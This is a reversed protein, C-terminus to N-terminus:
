GGGNPLNVRPRNRPPDGDGPGCDCLKGVSNLELTDGKLTSTFTTLTPDYGSVIQGCSYDGVGKELTLTFVLGCAGKGCTPDGELPVTKVTDFTTFNVRRKGSGVFDHSSVFTVEGDKFDTVGLPVATFDVTIQDGTAVVTLTSSGVVVGDGGRTGSGNLAVVDCHGPPYGASAAGGVLACAIGALIARQATNRTM